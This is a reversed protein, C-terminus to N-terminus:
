KVSRFDTLEINNEEIWAKMRPDTVAALDIARCTNFSSLKFLEADCYGCHTVVYGYEKKLMGAKDEIITELPRNKLQEEPSAGMTYWTEPSGVDDRKRFDGTYIVGYKDALTKRARDTTKTGYAHGHIYDPKRGMIEIFREIQAEFEAYVQEYNVHDFNNEETDMARNERSTFFSGDEHCLNPVKDYGLLSCGTSANLDIGFAIEDLYPRIWEACEEAWPMNSFFGTNRIVGNKISHIVGAAAARTIGYDDSQVLLKM